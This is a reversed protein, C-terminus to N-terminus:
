NTLSRNVFQETLQELKAVEQRSYASVTDKFIYVTCESTAPNRAQVSFFDLLCM